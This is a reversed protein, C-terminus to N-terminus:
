PIVFSLWAAVSLRGLCIYITLGASSSIAAKAESSKSHVKAYRVSGDKDPAGVMQAALRPHNLSLVSRSTRDYAAKYVVIIRYKM